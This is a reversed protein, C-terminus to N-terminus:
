QDLKWANKYIEELFLSDRVWHVFERYENNTIETQDMYLAHISVVKSRAQHLFPVDQDGNGMTYSGSPIYVMGQPIEPYYARRGQVGTLHGTGSDCATFVAAIGVVVFVLVKKM